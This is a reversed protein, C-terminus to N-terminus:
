KIFVKGNAAESDSVVKVMYISNKSPLPIQNNIETTVTQLVQRGSLDFVMIRAEFNANELESAPFNVNLVNGYAFINIESELTNNPPETFYVLFSRDSGSKYGFVYEPMERLNQIIGTQLDELYIPTESDFTEIKSAKISYEGDTGARFWMPVTENGEIAPLTNIAMNQNESKTFLMPVDPSDSIIRYVDYLRDLKQTANENFRIATQTTIANGTTKLVLLKNDANKYFAQGGHVRDNNDLSLTGAGSTARVFFGQGSPIYQTTTNAAGGGNIYYRYDGNAGITPDFLWIAGNLETPITVADWDLTSPYPNGVLNWGLGSQTFAKSQNGTNTTGSFVETTAAVEVSWLSYGQMIGLSYDTPVIDDWGNDSELHSQLYDDLFMGSLANSVPSSILHWKGETLYRQVKAEGGGSYTVSGYDILSADGAADSELVLDGGSIDLTTGTEVKINTGPGVKLAQSFGLYATFVLVTLLTITKSTM